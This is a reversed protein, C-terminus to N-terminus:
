DVIALPVATPVTPALRQVLFLSIPERTMERVSAANLYPLFEEDRTIYAQAFVLSLSKVYNQALQQSPGVIESPLELQAEESGGITSFHTGEQMLVFYKEPVTIWSFPPIQEVIAPAVTDAGGAVLMTPTQVKQYGAEGFLASGVPNIAIVAGIRDDRFQVNATEWRDRLTLARCQLFLSVNWSERQQSDECRQELYPLNLEAGALALVTYGGFSQGIAGIRDFDLRDRFQADTQSLKELTDLLFSVDLPRDAFEEPKAIEQAEGRLLAEMHKANSGSHEPVLVAFGHSALHEALYQFSQRDSGLGHSIVMVPAPEPPQGALQPLYIDVAFRHGWPKDRSPDRLTTSVVDWTYDGLEYWASSPPLLAESAEAEALALNRVTTLAQNSQEILQQLERAMALTQNFNVQLTPTPFHRLVNLLTLGEEDVAALILAARLGKYGSEGSGLQIARGLRQLLAEGQPTYLFQSIAIPSVRARRLLAQRLNDRTEAPAFEIYPALEPAITGTLAYDELAQVSVSREFIGYTATIREASWSPASLALTLCGGITGLTRLLPHLVNSRTLTAVM